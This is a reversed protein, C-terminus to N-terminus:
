SRLSFCSPSPAPHRQSVAIQETTPSSVVGGTATFTGAANINDEEEDSSHADEAMQAPDGVSPQPEPSPAQSSHSGSAASSLPSAPPLSGHISPIRENADSGSINPRSHTGDNGSLLSELRSPSLRSLVHRLIDDPIDLIPYTLDLKKLQLDYTKLRRDHYQKFTKWQALYSSVEKFNRELPGNPESYESSPDSLGHREIYTHGEGMVKQIKM